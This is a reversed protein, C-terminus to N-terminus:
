SSMLFAAAVDGSAIIGSELLLKKPGIVESVQSEWNSLNGGIASKDNGFFFLCSTDQVDL